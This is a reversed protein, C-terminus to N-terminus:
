RKKAQLSIKLSYGMADAVRSLTAISTSSYGGKELRAVSPQQVKLRQALEQQSLHAKKRAKIFQELLEFEPGMAEYKENFEEDKLAEDKFSKFSPRKTM